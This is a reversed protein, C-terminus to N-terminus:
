SAHRAEMVCGDPESRGERALRSKEILVASGEPSQAHLSALYYAESADMLYGHALLEGAAEALKFCANM